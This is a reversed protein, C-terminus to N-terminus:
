THSEWQSAGAEYTRTRNDGPWNSAIILKAHHGADILERYRRQYYRTRGHGQAITEFTGDGKRLQVTYSPAM